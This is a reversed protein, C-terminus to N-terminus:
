NILKEYIDYDIQQIQCEGSTQIDVVASYEFSRSVYNYLICEANRLQDQLVSDSVYEDDVKLKLVIKGVFDKILYHEAPRFDFSDGDIDNEEAIKKFDEVSCVSLWGESGAYEVEEKGNISIEFSTEDDQLYYDARESFLGTIVVDTPESSEFIVEEGKGNSSHQEFTKLNKNM